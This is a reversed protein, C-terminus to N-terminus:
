GRVGKVVFYLGYFCECLVKGLWLRVEKVIGGVLEVYGNIM